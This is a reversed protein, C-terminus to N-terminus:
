LKYFCHFLVVKNYLSTPETFSATPIVAVYSKIESVKDCLFYLYLYPTPVQLLPVSKDSM